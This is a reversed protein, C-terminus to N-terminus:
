RKNFYLRMQWTYDEVLPLPDERPVKEEWLSSSLYTMSDGQISEKHLTFLTSDAMRTCGIQCLAELSSGISRLCFRVPTHQINLSEASALFTKESTFKLVFSNFQSVFCSGLTCQYGYCIKHFSVVSFLLDFITKILFM